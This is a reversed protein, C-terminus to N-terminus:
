YMSCKFDTISLDELHKGETPKPFGCILNIFNFPANEFINPQKFWSLSCDCVLSSSNLYLYVLNPMFKFANEQIEVINNQLMNLEDLNDLGYFAEKKIYLISNNVLSLKKLNTLGNFSEKSDEIM